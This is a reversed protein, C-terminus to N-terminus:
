NISVSSRHSKQGMVIVNNKEKSSIVMKITPRFTM